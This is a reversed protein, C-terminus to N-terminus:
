DTASGAKPKARLLAIVEAEQNASLLGIWENKVIGNRDVLVLTPTGRVRLNTAPRQRVDDVVVHEQELYEKGSQNPQPFVAILRVAQHDRPEGNLRHYFPESQKCFGCQTSLILLLTQESKSWDVGEVFVQRGVPDISRKPPDAPPPSGLNGARVFAVVILVSVLIIAVNLAPDIARFVFVRLAPSRLWFRNFVPM